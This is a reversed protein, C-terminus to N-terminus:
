NVSCPRDLLIDHNSDETHSLINDFFNINGIDSLWVKVLLSAGYRVAPRYRKVQKTLTM